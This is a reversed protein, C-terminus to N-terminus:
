TLDERLQALTQAIRTAAQLSRPAQAHAQLLAIEAELRDAHRHEVAADAAAESAAQSAASLFKYSKVLM